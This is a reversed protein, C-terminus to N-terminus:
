SITPISKRLWKGLEINRLERMNIEFMHTPKTFKLYWQEGLEM